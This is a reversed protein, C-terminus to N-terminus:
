QNEGEIFPPLFMSLLSSFFLSMQNIQLMADKKRSSASSHFCLLQFSSFSRLIIQMAESSSKKTPEVCQQV